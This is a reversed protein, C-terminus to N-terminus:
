QLVLYRDNGAGRGTHTGCRRADKRALACPQYEGVDVLLVARGDSAVDYSGIAVRPELGMVYRLFGVPLADDVGSKGSVAADIDQDVVCTYATGDRVLEVEVHPIALHG